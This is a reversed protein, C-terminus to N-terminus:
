NEAKFFEFDKNGLLYAATDTYFQSSVSLGSESSSKRRKWGEDDSIRVVEITSPLANKGIFKLNGPLEISVISTGLLAGERIERLNPSEGDFTISTVNGSLFAYEYLITTKASIQVSNVFSKEDFAYKYIDYSYALYTEPLKLATESGFYRVLLYIRDVTNVYWAYGDDTLTIATTTEAGTRVTLAYLAVSSGGLTGATLSISSHNVVDMLRTCSSFANQGISTLSKGLTVSLLEKCGYFANEAIISVGEGGTLVRLTENFEFASRNIKTVAAPIHLMGGEFDTNIFAYNWIEYSRGNFDTPLIVAGKGIFDLLYVRSEDSYFIFDEYESLRSAGNPDTYVHKVYLYSSSGATISVRPSLNHIEILRYCDYFASDSLYTLSAPITVKLVSKFGSFAYDGISDLGEPLILEEVLSLNAFASGCITRVSAGLTLTKVSTCGTFAYNNIFDTSDPINISEISTCYAFAYKNIRVVSEGLDLIKISPCGSFANTGILQLYDPLYVATLAKNNSFANDAIEVVPLGNYTDPISLVTGDFDGIGMVKYGLGDDTLAYLLGESHKPKGCRHCAGDNFLHEGPAQLPFAKEGEYTKGEFITTASYKIEGGLICGAEKIIESAAFEINSKEHNDNHECVFTFKASGLDSGGQYWETKALVYSHGIADVTIRKVEKLEQDRFLISATYVEAGDEECTAAVTTHTVEALYAETHGGFLTCPIYATASSYDSEWEFVIGTLDFAHDVPEILVPGYKNEYKVGNYTVSAVYEAEGQLLCTPQKVVTRTVSAALKEKHSPDNKCSVVFTCSGEEDILTWNWEAGPANFDHGLAAGETDSCRSCTKPTDCTADKWSHGLASGETDSCRTCTKPAECTAKQWDHGLKVGDTKLCTSCTRAHECTAASWSHGLASGETDSCRSCTRPAECTANNWAHGLAVGETTYCLTCTKPADCTAEQWSHELAVGETEGCSTCHKPADCTADQWYHGYPEGTTDGCRKCTAATTCTTASWDHGLASGYTEGCVSCTEPANCDADVWSHDLSPLITSSHDIRNQCQPDTFIALCDICSYSEIHGNETCTPAVAENKLIRSHKCGCGALALVLILGVATLAATTIIKKIM